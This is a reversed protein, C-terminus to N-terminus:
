EVVSMLEDDSDTWQVGVAWGVARGVGKQQIEM